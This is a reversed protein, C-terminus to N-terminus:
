SDSEGTATQRLVNHHRKCFHQPGKPIQKFGDTVWIIDNEFCRTDRHDSPLSVQDLIGDSGTCILAFSKEDAGIAYRYEHGWPDTVPVRRIYDPVLFKSLGTANVWHLSSGNLWGVAPFHNNDVAYSQCSTAIERLDAMAQRQLKYERAFPDSPV